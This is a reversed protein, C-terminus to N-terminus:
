SYKIYPQKCFRLTNYEYKMLWYNPVSDPITLISLGLHLADQIFPLCNPFTLNSPLSDIIRRTLLLNFSRRKDDDMSFVFSHDKSTKLRQQVRAVNSANWHFALAEPSRSQCDELGAFQKADRFLFEIEFPARYCAIIDLPLMALDTSFFVEHHAKRQKTSAYCIVVVKVESQLAVRYLTAAYTISPKTREVGQWRSFNIFTVKGDFRKPRGPKKSRHGQYFYRLNADVRLKSVLHLNNNRLEKVFGAKAYYADAVV